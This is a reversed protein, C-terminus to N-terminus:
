GDTQGETRTAAGIGRGRNPPEEILALWRGGVSLRHPSIVRVQGSCAAFRKQGMAQRCVTSEFLTEASRTQSAPFPNEALPSPRPLAVRLPGKTGDSVAAGVSICPDFGSLDRDKHM